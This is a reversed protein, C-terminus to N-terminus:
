GATWGGDVVMIEGNVFSADDSALFLVAKALEDPEAARTAAPLTTQLREMGLPNPNRVAINTKVGGPCIANCRIGKKAYHFAVSRTLGIVAHKSTTYSVGSRGGFLGGVSAINVISGAGKALMTALAKRTLYMPGNLNVGLVREWLADDLDGLPVFDDMIGANNVIIDVTGFATLAADVMAEADARKSIDGTIKVIAPLGLAEIEAALTDLGGPVIDAAVVQAGAQAFVTVVARGIGSGAGTVVAVKGQLKM